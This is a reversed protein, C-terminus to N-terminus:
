NVFIKYAEDPSDVNLAKKEMPCIDTGDRNIINDVLKNYHVRVGANKFVELSPRSLVIAHIEKIKGYCLLLAAAKGIVKDSISAGCFVDKDDRLLDVIPKIGRETSTKTTDGNKLVFTYDNERRTAKARSLPSNMAKNIAVIITPVLIWQLILGPWGSVLSAVAVSFAPASGKTLLSTLAYLSITSVIRGAIQSIALSLYINLKARKYLLGSVAGYTALEFVMFVVKPYAPMGMLLFSLIPCVAGILAGYGGGLLAGAVLIPLHMPLLSQGAGAGFIHFVQPLLVGLALFLGGLTIKLTKSKM